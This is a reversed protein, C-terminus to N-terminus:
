QATAPTKQILTTTRVTSAGRRRSVSPIHSPAGAERVLGACMYSAAATYRAREWKIAGGPVSSANTLGGGTATRPIGIASSGVLTPTCTHVTIAAAASTAARTSM